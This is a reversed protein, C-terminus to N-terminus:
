LAEPSERPDLPALCEVLRDPGPFHCAGGVESRAVSRSLSRRPHGEQRSLLDSSRDLSVARLPDKSLCESRATRVQRSNLGEDEYCGTSRGVRPVRVDSLRKVCLEAADGVADASAPIPGSEQRDEILALHRSRLHRGPTGQYHGAQQNHENPCVLPQHRRQEGGATTVRRRTGFISCLRERSVPEHTTEPQGPRPDQPAVGPRIPAHIGNRLLLAVM